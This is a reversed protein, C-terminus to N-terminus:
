AAAATGRMALGFTPMSLRTREAISSGKPPIKGNQKPVEGQNLRMPKDRGQSGRQALEPVLQANLQHEALATVESTRCGPPSILEMGFPQGLQLRTGIRHCAGQCQTGGRSASRCCSM